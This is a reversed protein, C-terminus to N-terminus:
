PKFKFVHVKGPTTPNVVFLYTFPAKYTFGRCIGGKLISAYGTASNTINYAPKVTSQETFKYLFLDKQASNGSVPNTEENLSYFSGFHRFIFSGNIRGTSTSLDTYLLCSANSNGTPFDFYYLKNPSINLTLYITDKFAFSNKVQTSYSSYDECSSNFTINQSAQEPCYDNNNSRNLKNFEDSRTLSTILKTKVFYSFKTFHETTDSPICTNGQTTWANSAINYTARNYPKKNLTGPKQVLYNIEGNGDIFSVTSFPFEENGFPASSLTQFTSSGIQYSFLSPQYTQTDGIFYAIDNRFHFFVPNFPLTLSTVLELVTTDLSKIGLAKSYALNKESRLFARVM